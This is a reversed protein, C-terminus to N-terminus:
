KNIELACFTDKAHLQAFMNFVYECSSGELNAFTKLSKEVCHAKRQNVQLSVSFINSSAIAPQFRSGYFTISGHDVSGHGKHEM